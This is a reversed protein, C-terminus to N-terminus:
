HASCFIADSCQLVGIVVRVQGLALPEGIAEPDFRQVGPPWKNLAKALTPGINRFELASCLRAVESSLGRPLISSYNVAIRSPLLLSRVVSTELVRLSVAALISLPTEAAKIGASETRFCKDGPSRAPTALSSRSVIGACRATGAMITM